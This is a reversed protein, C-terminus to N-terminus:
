LAGEPRSADEEPTLYYAAALSEIKDLETDARLYIEAQLIWVDLVERINDPLQKLLALTKKLDYRGLMQGANAIIADLNGTDFGGATDKTKRVMILNRGNNYARKWWPDDTHQTESRILAPILTNFQDKLRDKTAIGKKHQSLWSIADNLKSNNAMSGRSTLAILNEIEPGFAQGSIVKRQLEGIRFALLAGSNDRAAYAEVRGLRHNMQDLTEAQTKTAAVLEARARQAEQADSLGKSLPVFSAELQSMRSLLMDIRGSQSMDAKKNEAILQAQELRDLREMLPSDTERDTDRNIKGAAEALGSLRQIEDKQQALHNEIITVRDVLSRIEIPNPRTDGTGNMSDAWNAVFPLRDKLAPLFYIGAGSGLLFIILGLLLRLSWNKGSVDRTIDRTIDGSIPTKERPEQSATQKPNKQAMTDQGPKEKASSERIKKDPAPKKDTM